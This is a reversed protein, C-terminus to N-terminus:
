TTTGKNHAAITAGPPDGIAGEEGAIASRLSHGARQERHQDWRPAADAMPGQRSRPAASASIALKRGPISASIPVSSNQRAIRVRGARSRRHGADVGGDNPQEGGCKVIGYPAARDVRREIEGDGRAYKQQKQRPPRRGSPYDGRPRRDTPEPDRRM